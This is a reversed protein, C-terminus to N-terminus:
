CIPLRRPSFFGTRNFCKWGARHDSYKGKLFQHAPLSACGMRLGGSHGRGAKCRWSMELVIGWQQGEGSNSVRGSLMELFTCTCLREWATGSAWPVRQDQGLGPLSPNGHSAPHHPSSPKSARVAATGPAPLAM